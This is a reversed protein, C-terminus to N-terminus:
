IGLAFYSQELFSQQKVRDQSKRFSYDGKFLIGKMEDASLSFKQWAKALFELFSQLRKSHFFAAEAVSFFLFRSPLLKESLTVNFFLFIVWKILRTKDM